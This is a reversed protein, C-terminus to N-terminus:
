PAATGQDTAPGAPTAHDSDVGSRMASKPGSTSPNSYYTKIFARFMARCAPTRRAGHARGGQLPTTAFAVHMSTATISYSV